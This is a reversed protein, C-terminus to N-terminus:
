ALCDRLARVVSMRKDTQRLVIHAPEEITVVEGTNGVEVQSKIMTRNLPRRQLKGAGLRLIRQIDNDTWTEVKVGMKRLAARVSALIRQLVGAQEGGDTREAVSTIYEEALMWKDEAKGPDLWDYSEAIRQMGDQDAKEFVETLFDARDKKTPYLAHLGKHGVLEHISRKVVTDVTDGPRVVVHATDTKPDYWASVEDPSVGHEAAVAAVEEAVGLEDIGKIDPTEGTRWAIENIKKRAEVPTMKATPEGEEVKALRATTGAAVTAIPTNPNLPRTTRDKSRTWELFESNNLATVRGVKWGKPYGSAYARRAAMPSKFGIMAKHEDFNGDQDVQDIVYVNTDAEPDIDKNVQADVRDGDAGITGRIDGYHTEGGRSTDSAPNEVSIRIGPVGIDKPELHGKAYNDKEIQAETPPSKDNTPSTAAEDALAAVREAASEPTIGAVAEGVATGLERQEADQPSELPREATPSREREAEEGRALIADSTEVDGEPSVVFDANGLKHALRKDEPLATPETTEVVDAEPTADAEMEAQLAEQEQEHWKLIHEPTVGADLLKQAMEPNIPQKGQKAEVGEEILEGRLRDQIKGAAVDSRQQERQKVAEIMDNALQKASAAEREEFAAEIEADVRQQDSLGAMEADIDEGLEQEFEIAPDPLNENVFLETELPDFGNEEAQARLDEEMAQLEAAKKEINSQQKKADRFARRRGPLFSAIGEVLMGITFGTGAGEGAQGLVQFVSKDQDYFTNKAVHNMVEQGFEQIAEEGGQMLMRKFAATIAGGSAKNVKSLFAALPIVESTGAVGAIDGADRAAEYSAGEALMEEFVAIENMVSGTMAGVGTTAATATGVGAGLKMAAGRTIVAPIAMGLFMGVGNPLGNAAWGLLGEAGALAESVDAQKRAWDELSNGWQYVDSKTADELKKVQGARMAAREEPGADRYEYVQWADYLEFVSDKSVEKNDWFKIDPLTKGFETKDQREINNFIQLLDEDPGYLTMALSRPLSATATALGTGVQGAVHGATVDSWDAEGERKQKLYPGSPGWAWRTSDTFGGLPHEESVGGPTPTSSEFQGFFDPQDPIASVDFQDFFDDSVPDKDSAAATEEYSASAIEKESPTADALLMPPNVELPPGEKFPSDPDEPATDELVPEEPLPADAPGRIRDPGERHMAVAEEFSAGKDMAQAIAEMQALQDEPGGPDTSGHDFMQRFKQLERARDEPSRNDNVSTPGADNEVSAVPTTWDINEEDEDSLSSFQDFFSPEAM